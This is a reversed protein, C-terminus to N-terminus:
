ATQAVPEESPAANGETTEPSSAPTEVPKAVPLLAKCAMYIARLVQKEDMSHDVRQTVSKAPPKPHACFGDLGEVLQGPTPWGTWKWRQVGPIPLVAYVTANICHNRDENPNRLLPEQQLQGDM